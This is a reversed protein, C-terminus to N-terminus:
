FLTMSLSFAHTQQFACANGPKTVRGNQDLRRFPGIDQDIGEDRLVRFVRFVKNQRFLDVINQQGMAVAVVDGIGHRDGGFM